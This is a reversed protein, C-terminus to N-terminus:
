SGQSESVVEVSKRGNSSLEPTSPRKGIGKAPIGAVIVNEETISRTVVAGAAVVVGNAIRTGATVIVHAGLWVDDGIVISAEKREQLTMPRAMDMSHNSSFLCVGPGM